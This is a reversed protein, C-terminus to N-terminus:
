DILRVLNDDVVQEADLYRGVKYDGMITTRLAVRKVPPPVGEASHIVRWNDWVVMDGAQWDHWYAHDNDVLHAALDSLLADSEAREMGLVYRSHMPSLKLVRRGTEQQTIVLPHVVPAFEMKPASSGGKVGPAHRVDPFGFQGSAMDPNFHYVVELGEIRQKMADPLREYAGIADIFGTHGGLAAPHIMRLVAGRVITPMFSQDWHWGLWGVRETGEVILRTNFQPKTSEPDHQLVMLYPNAPDNLIGTASAELEGFLRSLQMQAFDDNAPNRFLLVGHRVWADRILASDEASLPRTMDIGQVEAGVEPALQRVTRTM